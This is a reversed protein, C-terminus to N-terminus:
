PRGPRRSRSQTRGAPPAPRSCCCGLTQTRRCAPLPSRVRGAPAPWSWITALCPNTEKKTELPAVAAAARLQRALRASTFDPAVQGVLIVDSVVNDTRLHLIEQYERSRYWQKATQMDPFEMLVVSGPWAG